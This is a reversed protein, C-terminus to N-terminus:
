VAEEGGEFSCTSALVDYVLCTADALADWSYQRNAFDSIWRRRVDLDKYLPSNFYERLRKALDDSNQPAFVFGTEGEIVDEKMSGVDATLVPLGFSYALFLVGSQFIHVYPLVLVDAAKFYVETEEDPVFEIKMVIGRKDPADGVMRQISSWYTQFGKKPQGAVILRYEASTARLQGFAEILYELGKYPAINGFFLITKERAGIGLRRRAEAGTLNTHPLSNNIGFPVVTVCAENVGFAASLEAKMKGTHVFIHDALRYQFKLTARNLWTDKGDRTGANVNHATLVIRKRLARYYLTLLVRDIIDFKNNWLIHFIRPRARWAYSILRWYYAAINFARSAASTGVLTDRRLVFLRIRQKERFERVNLDDGCIVDLARVRSALASTMGYAYPRDRGATLLAITPRRVPLSAAPFQEVAGVRHM